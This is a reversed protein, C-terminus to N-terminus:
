PQTNDCHSFAALPVSFQIPFVHLYHTFICRRLPHSLTVCMGDEGNMLAFFLGFVTKSSDILLFM